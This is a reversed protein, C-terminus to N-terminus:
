RRIKSNAQRQGSNVGGIQVQESCDGATQVQKISDVKKGPKLRTSNTGIVIEQHQRSNRGAKQVQKGKRKIAVYYGAAGGGVLGIILSILETGIGDFFWKLWEIDKLWEM